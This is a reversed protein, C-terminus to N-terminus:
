TIALCVPLRLMMCIVPLLYISIETAPINPPAIPITSIDNTISANRNLLSSGVVLAIFVAPRARNNAATREPKQAASPPGNTQVAPM